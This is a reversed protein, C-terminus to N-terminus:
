AADLVQSDASGGIQAALRTRVRELEETHADVETSTAGRDALLDRVLVLGRAQLLLDDIEHALLQEAERHQSEIHQSEIHQPHVHQNLETIM